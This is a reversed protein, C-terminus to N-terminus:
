STAVDSLIMAYPTMMGDREAYGSVLKHEPDVLGLDVDEHPFVVIRRDGICVVLERGEKALESMAKLRRYYPERKRATPQSPDVIVNLRRGNKETYMLFKARDPRWAEDLKESDLWLCIFGRCAPPRDEYVGCGAARKFHGCWAGAPKDLAQIALLKCCMGCEGCSKGM